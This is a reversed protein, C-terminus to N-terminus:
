QLDGLILSRESADHSVTSGMDLAATWLRVWGPLSVAARRRTRLRRAATLQVLVAAITLAARRVVSRDGLLSAGRAGRGSFSCQRTRPM